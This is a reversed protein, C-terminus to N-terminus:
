ALAAVRNVTHGDGGLAGAAGAPAGHEHHILDLQVAAMLAQARNTVGLRTCHEDGFAM